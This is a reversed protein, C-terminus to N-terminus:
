AAGTRVAEEMRAADRKAFALAGLIMIVGAAVYVSSASAIAASESSRTAIYGVLVPLPAGGLWGAMNMFGAATGRFQPPVVDFASAFISADYVGKLLGWFVLAAIFVGFAPTAGALYVFPAGIILALAQVLMRGGPTRRRLLDAFYGGIPAGVMNAAFIPFTGGLAAWAPELHFKDSVFKPLWTLPVLAVGNAGMFVLMLVLMSPTGWVWRLFAIGSRGHAIYLAAYLGSAVGPLAGLVVGAPVGAWVAKWGLMQALRYGILMWVGLIVAYALMAGVV